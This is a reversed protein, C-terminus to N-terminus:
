NFGTSSTSGGNSVGAGPEDDALAAVVCEFVDHPLRSRLRAFMEEHERELAEHLHHVEHRAPADLGLLQTISRIAEMKVRLSHVVIHPHENRRDRAGSKSKQPGYLRAINDCDEAIKRLAAAALGRMEPDQSVDEQVLQSAEAAYRKVASKTVGWKQALDETRDSTWRLSRM